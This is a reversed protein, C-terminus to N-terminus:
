QQMLKDLWFWRGDSRLAGDLFESFSGSIRQCYEPRPFMERYGDRIAYRDHEVDSVDVLIYNTDQVACVVYWSAPGSKDTDDQLIAVRARRIQALPLFSFPPDLFRDYLNAGDCHEYFARLDPDLKWGVRQEFAEIQARTAPPNPFHSRSIEALLDVMLVSRSEM